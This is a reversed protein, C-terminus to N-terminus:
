KLKKNNPVIKSVEITNFSFKHHRIPNKHHHDHHDTVQEVYRSIYFGGNNISTFAPELFKDKLIIAPYILTKGPAQRL